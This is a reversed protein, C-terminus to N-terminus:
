SHDDPVRHRPYVCVQALAAADLKSIQVYDTGASDLNISDWLENVVNNRSSLDGGRRKIIDKLYLTGLLVKTDIAPDKRPIQTMFLVAGAGDGGGVGRRRRQASVRSGCSLSRPSALGRALRTGRNFEEVPLAELEKLDFPSGQPADDGM